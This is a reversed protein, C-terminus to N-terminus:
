FLHFQLCVPSCPLSPLFLFTPLFPARPDGPGERWDEGPERWVRGKEGVAAVNGKLTCGGSQYVGMETRKDCMGLSILGLSRGVPILGTSRDVPIWGSLTSAPIKGLGRGMPIEGPGRGAPILGLTRDGPIWGSM